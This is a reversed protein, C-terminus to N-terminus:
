SFPGHLAPLARELPAAVDEGVVALGLEAALARSAALAGTPCLAVVTSPGIADCPPPPHRSVALSHFSCIELGRTVAHTSVLESALHFCGRFQAKPPQRRWAPAAAAAAAVVPAEAEPVTAAAAPVTAAAAQVTVVEVAATAVVVAAWDVVVVM